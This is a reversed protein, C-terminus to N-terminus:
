EDLPNDAKEAIWSDINQKIKWLSLALSFLAVSVLVISFAFASFYPLLGITIQSVSAFLCALVSFFLTDSLHQLPLLLGRKTPYEPLTLKPVLQKKEYLERFDRYKEKFEDKYSQTDYVSDKMRVIIFTKLSLLFASATLFGTFLSTRLHTNYFSLVESTDFNKYIVGLVITALVVATVLWVALAKPLRM